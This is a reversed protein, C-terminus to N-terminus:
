PRSRAKLEELAPRDCRPWKLARCLLEAQGWDSNGASKLGRVAVVLDFVDRAQEREPEHTQGAFESRVADVDARLASWAEPTTKLNDERLAFGVRALPTSRGAFHGFPLLRSEPFHGGLAFGVAAAM